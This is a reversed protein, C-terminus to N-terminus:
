EVGMQADPQAFVRRLEVREVAKRWAETPLLKVPLIVPGIFEGDPYRAMRDERWCRLAEADDPDPCDRLPICSVEVGPENLVEEERGEQTGDM